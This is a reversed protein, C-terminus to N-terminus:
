SVHHRSGAHQLAAAIAKAREYSLLLNPQDSGTTDAHGEVDVKAASHENLWHVIPDMASKVQAEEPHASGFAFPVFTGESCLRSVAHATDQNAPSAAPTSAVQVGEWSTARTDPPAGIDPLASLAACIALATGGLALAVVSPLPVREGPVEFLPISNLHDTEAM